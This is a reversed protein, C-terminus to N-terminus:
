HERYGTPRLNWWRCTYSCMCTGDARNVARAVSKRCIADRFGAYNRSFFPPILMKEALKKQLGSTLNVVASVASKHNKERTVNDRKYFRLLRAKRRKRERVRWRWSLIRTTIRATVARRCRKCKTIVDPFSRDNQIRRAFHDFILSRPICANTIYTWRWATNRRRRIAIYHGVM